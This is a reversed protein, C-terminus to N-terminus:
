HVSARARGSRRRDGPTTDIGRNGLRINGAITGSFLHVDQLVLGFLPRLERLDIERIDIGDLLIRGGTVDYFRLCCFWILTSQRHAPPM